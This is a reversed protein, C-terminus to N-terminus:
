GGLSASARIILKCAWSVVGLQVDILCKDVVRDREGDLLCGEFPAHDHEAADAAVEEHAGGHPEGDGRALHAGLNDCHVDGCAQEDEKAKLVNSRSYIEHLDYQCSLLMNKM